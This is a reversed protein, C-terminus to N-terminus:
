VPPIGRAAVIGPLLAAAELLSAPLPEDVEIVMLAHEGRISRSVRMRAINVENKALLGTVSAVVGPRDQHITLLTPYHGRLEVEFGDVDTVLVEGGGPSSGTIVCSQSATQIYLRATNPHAHPLEASEFSVALGAARAREMAQPIREDDPPFDLLGAVLALDTGHGRYTRAFSGHLQIKVARPLEGCVARALRGLRVAGATHSSSPGIMVPGILSFVDM